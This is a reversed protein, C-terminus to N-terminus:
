VIAAFATVSVCSCPKQVAHCCGPPHLTQRFFRISAPLATASQPAREGAQEHLRQGVARHAAPQRPYLWHRRPASAAPRPLAPAPSRVAAEPAIFSATEAGRRCSWRPTRASSSPPRRAAAIFATIAAYSFVSASFCYVHFNASRTIQVIHSNLKRQNKKFFRSFVHFSRAHFHFSSSHLTLIPPKM